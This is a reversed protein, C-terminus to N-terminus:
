EIVQVSGRMFAKHPTCMYEFTGVNNFTFSFTGGRGFTASSTPLGGTNGSDAAVVNHAITDNNTWTVTTGKKVKIKAPKFSLDSMVVAAEQSTTMDTVGATDANTGGATPSDSGTHTQVTPSPNPDRTMVWWLVGGAIIVIVIAVTIITSKKNM